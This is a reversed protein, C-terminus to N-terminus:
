NALWTSQGVVKQQEFIFFFWIQVACCCAMAFRNDDSANQSWFICWFANAAPARGRFGRSPLKCRLGWVGQSSKLSGIRLPIPPIILSPFRSSPIFFSSIHFPSFPIPLMLFSSQPPYFHLTARVWERYQFNILNLM